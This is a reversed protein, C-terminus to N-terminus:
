IRAGSGCKPTRVSPAGAYRYDLTVDPSRTPETFSHTGRVVQHHRTFKDGLNHGLVAAVDVDTDPAQAAVTM